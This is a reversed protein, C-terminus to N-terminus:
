PADYLVEETKPNEPKRVGRVGKALALVSLLLVGLLIVASSAITLPRLSAGDDKASVMILTNQLTLISVLADIFNITRLLRTLRNQSATRKKLHVSAMTIKYTTYAAMAIAPILSLSVPKELRILLIVPVVLCGNLLLLLASATRYVTRRSRKKRKGARIAREAAVIRGRLLSLVLYYASITGHWLSGFRVGLFGNYLAFVATVALSGYAAAITKFDYDTKWRRVLNRGASM